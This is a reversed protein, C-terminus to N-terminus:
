QNLQEGCICHRNGKIQEKTHKEESCLEASINKNVVEGCM